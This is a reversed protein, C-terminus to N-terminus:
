EEKLEELFFSLFCNLHNLQPWHPKASAAGLKSIPVFCCWGNFLIASANTFDLPFKPRTAHKNLFPLTVLTCPLSHDCNYHWSNWLRMFNRDLGCWSKTLRDCGKLKEWLWERIEGFYYTHSWMFKFELMIDYCIKTIITLNVFTNNSWKCIETMLMLHTLFRVLLYSINEQIM